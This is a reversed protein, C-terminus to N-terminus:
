LRGGQGAPATLATLVHDRWQGDILLYDRAYGEVVFGLRRLLRGSRENTPMYNAMVRHLRLEEFAYAIGAQLAEFMIGRGVVRHDLSYGLTCSQFAGRVFNNFNCHGVIPGTPEEKRLVVLRLSTDSAHEERNREIRARWYPETWFGEERSPEWPALHERNEEFFRLFRPAFDVTPLTLLLRATEIRVPTHPTGVAVGSPEM